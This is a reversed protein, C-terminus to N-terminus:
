NSLGNKKLVEEFSILEEKGSLIDAHREDAIKILEEDFLKEFYDDIIEAIIYSVNKNMDKALTELCELQEEELDVTVSM